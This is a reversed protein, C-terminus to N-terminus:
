CVKGLGLVLGPDCVANLQIHIHTDTLMPPFFDSRNFFIVVSTCSIRAHREKSKDITLM